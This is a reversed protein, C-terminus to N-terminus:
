LVISDAGIFVNNGIKMCGIKTYVDTYGTNVDHAHIRMNSSLM